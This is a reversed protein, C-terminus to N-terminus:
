TKKAAARTEATPRFEEHVESAKPPIAGRIWLRQRGDEHREFVLQQWVAWWWPKARVWQELIACYAAMAEQVGEPSDQRTHVPPHIVIRHSSLGEPVIFVALVPAGTKGSLQAPGAPLRMTGGLFPAERFDTSAMGDATMAVLGGKRLRRVLMPFVMNPYHYVKPGAVKDLATASRVAIQRAWNFTNELYPVARAIHILTEYGMLNLVPHIMQAMGFHFMLVIAGKGDKVAADLHERGELHYTQQIYRRGRASCLLAYEVLTRHRVTLLRRLATRPRLGPCLTPLLRRMGPLAKREGGLDLGLFTALWHFWAMLGSLVVAWRPGLLRLTPLHVYYLYLIFGAVVIRKIM